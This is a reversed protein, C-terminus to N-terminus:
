KVPGCPAIACAAVAILLFHAAPQALCHWTEKKIRELLRNFYSSYILLQM